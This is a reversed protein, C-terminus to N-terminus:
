KSEKEEEKNLENRQWAYLKYKNKRNENNKRM